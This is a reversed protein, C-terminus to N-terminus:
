YIFLDIEGSFEDVARAQAESGPHQVCHGWHEEHSEEDPYPELDHVHAHESRAAVVGSGDVDAFLALLHGCGDDLFLVGVQARDRPVLRAYSREEEEDDAKPEETTWSEHGTPWSVDGVLWYRFVKNEVFEGEIKVNGKDIVDISSIAVMMSFLLIM